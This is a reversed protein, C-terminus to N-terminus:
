TASSRPSPHNAATCGPSRSVTRGRDYFECTWWAEEEGCGAKELYKGLARVRHQGAMLEAKRGDNVENWRGFYPIGDTESTSERGLSNLMREVDAASCLVRLYNEEAKRNLGGQQFIGCLKGAHREDLPRNQGISWTPDLASVPMRATAVRYPRALEQVSDSEQFSITTEDQGDGNKQRKRAVTNSDAKRKM